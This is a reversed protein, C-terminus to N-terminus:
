KKGDWTGQFKQSIRNKGKIDEIKQQSYRFTM